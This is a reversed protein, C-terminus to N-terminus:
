QAQLQVQKSITQSNRIASKNGDVGVCEGLCSFLFFSRREVPAGSGTYISPAVMMMEISKDFFMTLIYFLLCAVFLPYFYLEYNFIFVKKFKPTTLFRFGFTSLLLFFLASFLLYVLYFFVRFFIYMMEKQLKSNKMSIARIRQKKLERTQLNHVSEFVFLLHVKCKDLHYANRTKCFSQAYCIHRIRYANSELENAVPCGPRARFITTGFGM